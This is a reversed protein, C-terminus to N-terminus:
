LLILIDPNGSTYGMDRGNGSLDMWNTITDGNSLNSGTNNASYWAEMGPFTDAKFTLDLTEQSQLLEGGISLVEMQM